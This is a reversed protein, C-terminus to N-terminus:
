PQEASHPIDIREEGTRLTRLIFTAAYGPDQASLGPRRSGPGFRQRRM